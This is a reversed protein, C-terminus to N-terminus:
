PNGRTLCFEDLSRRAEEAAPLEPCVRLPIAVAQCMPSLGKALSASAVRVLGPRVGVLSMWELLCRGAAEAHTVRPSQISLHLVLGRQTDVVLTLKGFYPRPGEQIVAHSYAVDLEVRFKAEQPLRRVAELEAAPPTFAPEPPLVPMVLTRWELQEVTLPSQFDAPCWAIEGAPHQDYLERHAKVLLAFESMVKLDALMMGAEQETLFWPFYGPLMSRFDPYGAPKAGKPREYGLTKLLAKEEKGLHTKPSLSFMLSDQQYAHEPSEAEVQGTILELWNRIGRAGRYSVLGFVERNAGLVCLVRASGHTEVGLCDSDYMWDWPALRHFAAAAEYLERWLSLPVEPPTPRNSKQM